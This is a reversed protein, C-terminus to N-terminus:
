LCKKLTYIVVKDIAEKLSNAYGASETHTNVTGDYYTWTRNSGACMGSIDIAWGPTGDYYNIYGRKYNAGNKLAEFYITTGDEDSSQNIIKWVYNDDHNSSSSAIIM